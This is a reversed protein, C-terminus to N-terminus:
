VAIVDVSAARNYFCALEVSALTYFNEHCGVAINRLAFVLTTDNKKEKHCFWRAALLQQPYHAKSVLFIKRRIRMKSNGNYYLVDGM